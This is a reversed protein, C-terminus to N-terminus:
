RIMLDKSSKNLKLNKSQKCYAKFKHYFYRLKLTASNGHLPYVNMSIWIECLNKSVIKCSEKAPMQRKGYSNKKKSLYMIRCIAASGFPVRSGCFIVEHKLYLFEDLEKRVQQSRKKTEEHGYNDTLRFISLYYM